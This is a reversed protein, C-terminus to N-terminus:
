CAAHPGRAEQILQEAYSRLSHATLPRIIRLVVLASSLTEFPEAVADVSEDAAPLFSRGCHQKCFQRLAAVSLGHSPAAPVQM